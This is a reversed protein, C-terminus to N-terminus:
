NKLRISSIKVDAEIIGDNNSELVKLEEARRDRRRESLKEKVKGSWEQVFISFSSSEVEKIFRVMNDYNDSVINLSVSTQEFFDSSKKEAPSFALIQVSNSVAVQSLKNILQDSPLAQPFAQVFEKYEKEVAEYEQVAALREEMKQVETQLRLGERVRISYLYITGFLTLGILLINIFIDPRQLVTEKIKVVNFDKFDKAMLKKM